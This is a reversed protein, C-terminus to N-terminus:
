KAWGANPVIGVGEKVTILQNASIDRLSQRTGSPWFIDADAKATEGLGFHLRMDSASYFSSQSLM